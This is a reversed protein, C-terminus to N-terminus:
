DCHKEVCAGGERTVTVGGISGIVEALLEGSLADMAGGNTILVASIGRSPLLWSVGLSDAAADSIELCGDIMALHTSRQLLVSDGSQGRLVKDISEMQFLADRTAAAGTTVATREFGSRTTTVIGLSAGAVGYKEALTDLRYQWYDPDVAMRAPTPSLHREIWAVLRRSYDSRHSPRGTSVFAHSADPYVVLETDVGALRLGAFWQEAQNVPCRVDNGGHLVLTPTTVEAVRGLPSIERIRPSSSDFEVTQLLIGEDSPGATNAIDCVLGGAVAVAFRDTVSTLACTMFGGYSYGTLALQKPDAIGEAVLTGVPELLDARDLEGWGDQVGDLFSNGYGDSGRPNLTLVTYGLRVLDAHYAHTLTLTGTWANHPGGHVDLVLPGASTLSPDRLIWGQVRTGDSIDFWRETAVPFAVSSTLTTNVDTVTDVSRTDLDVVAIEGFSTATSLAVVAHGATLAFGSVVTQGGALIPVVTGTEVDVKHLETSGYNRVCFVVHGDATFHPAGGPYGAFGPMVNRDLDATLSRDAVRLDRHLVLLENNHVIPSHWGVAVVAGGDPTWALPGCIGRAHGLRSPTGLRDALSITWASSARTVDADDDIRATFALETGEHNYVPNSADWDGDTLRRLSGEVLDLEFLHSRVSGRVGAGAGDVKYRLRRTVLPRSSGTATRDVPASFAVRAGDPSFVPAGAGLPLQVATTLQTAAGGAADIEWLQLTGASDPRVFILQTSKPHWVPSTDSPGATLQQRPSALWISRDNTDEVPNSETRVYAIRGSTSVAVDGPTIVSAYDEITASRRSQARQEVVPSELTTLRKLM